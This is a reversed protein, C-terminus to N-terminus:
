KEAGGENGNQPGVFTNSKENRKMEKKITLTVCFIAVLMCLYCIYNEMCNKDEDMDGSYKVM